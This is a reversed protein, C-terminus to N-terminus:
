KQNDAQLPSIRDKNGLIVWLLGVTTQPPVLRHLPLAHLTNPTTVFYTSSQRQDFSQGAAAGLLELVNLLRGTIPSPMEPMGAYRGSGECTPLWDSNSWCQPM